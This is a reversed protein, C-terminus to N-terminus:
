FLPFSFFRGRMRLIIEPMLYFEFYTEFLEKTMWGSKSSLLVTNRDAHELIYPNYAHDVLFLSPLKDGNAAITFVATFGAVSEKEEIVVTEDSKGVVKTTTESDARLSTEDINYINGPLVSNKIYYLFIKQFFHSLNTKNSARIRYKDLTKPVDAKLDEHRDVFRKGFEHAPESVNQPTSSYM